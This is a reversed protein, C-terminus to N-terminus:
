TVSIKIGSKELFHCVTVYLINFDQVFLGFIIYVFLPVTEGHM